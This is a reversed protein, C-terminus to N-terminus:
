VAKGTSDRLEWWEVTSEDPSKSGAMKQMHKVFAFAQGNVHFPGETKESIEVRGDGAPTPATASQADESSSGQITTQAVPTISPTRSAAPTATAGAAPVTETAGTRAQPSPAAAQKSVQKSCASLALCVVASALATACGRM